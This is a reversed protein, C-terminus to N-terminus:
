RIKPDQGEFQRRRIFLVKPHKGALHSRSVPDVHERERVRDQEVRRNRRNEETADADQPLVVLAEDEGDDGECDEFGDQDDEM